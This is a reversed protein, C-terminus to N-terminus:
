RHEFKNEEEGTFVNCHTDIFEMMPAQLINLTLLLRVKRSVCLIFNDDLIFLRM